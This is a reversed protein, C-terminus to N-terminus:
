PAPAGRRGGQARARALLDLKRREMMEEFVRFRARQRVSLVQDVADAAERIQRSGEAMQDDLAKVKAALVADTTGNANLLGNIERIALVRQRQVQRRAVQLRRLRAGFDLFQEDSLQLQSQAQFLVAADFYDEVQQVTMADPNAPPPPM